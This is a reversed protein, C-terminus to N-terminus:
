DEREEDFLDDITIEEAEIMKDEDEENPQNSPNEEEDTGGYFRDRYKKRWSQETEELRNQLEAITKDKESDGFADSTKDKEIDGFADYTDTMNEVFSLAEDDTREGVIVSIANMFEERNLKM